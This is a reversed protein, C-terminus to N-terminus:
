PTAGTWTPACQKTGAITACARCQVSYTGCASITLKANTMTTWAGGNLNYRYEYAVTGASAPTVSGACTFTYVGGIVADTTPTRTIGTCAM